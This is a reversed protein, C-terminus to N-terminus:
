IEKFSAFTYESGEPSNLYSTINNADVRNSQKMIANYISSSVEIYMDHIDFDIVSYSKAAVRTTVGPLNFTSYTQTDSDYYTEFYTDVKVSGSMRLNCYGEEAKKEESFSITACALDRSYGHLALVNANVDVVVDKITILDLYRRFSVNKLNTRTGMFAGAYIIDADVNSKVSINEFTSKEQDPNCYIFNVIGSAYTMDAANYRGNDDRRINAIYAAREDSSDVTNLDVDVDVDKVDVGLACSFIGAVNLRNNHSVTIDVDVKTEGLVKSSIGYGAVGGVHFNTGANVNIATKINSNSIEVKNAYGLLGGMTNRQNTWFYASFGDVSSNINVNEITTNNAVAILSSVVFEEYIRGEFDVVHDHVDSDVVVSLNNITLNRIVAGDSEGFLAIHAFKAYSFDEINETTVHININNLSHGNGNINAKLKRNDNFMTVYDVDAFDVDAAFELYCNEDEGHNELMEKFSEASYILYPLEETGNRNQNELEFESYDVKIVPVDTGQEININGAGPITGIDNKKNPKVVSVITVTVIAVAVLVSSILSLFLNKRKM